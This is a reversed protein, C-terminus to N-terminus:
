SVEAHVASLHLVADLAHSNVGMGPHQEPSASQASPFAQVDSVQTLPVHVFTAMAPHQRVAPSQASPSVHVVSEQEDDFM